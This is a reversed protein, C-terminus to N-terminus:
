LGIYMSLLVISNATFFITVQEFDAERIALFSKAVDHNSFWQQALPRREAATTTRYLCEVMAVQLEYDGASLLLM